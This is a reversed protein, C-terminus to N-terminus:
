RTNNILFKSVESTLQVLQTASERLQILKQRVDKNEPQIKCSIVADDIVKNTNPDTLMMENLKIANVRRRGGGAEGGGRGGRGRGRGGSPGPSPSRSRKRKKNRSAASKKKSKRKKRSSSKDYENGSDSDSGSDSGSNGIEKHPVIPAPLIQQQQQQPPQLQQLLEEYQSPSLDPIGAGGGGMLPSLAVTDPNYQMIEGM